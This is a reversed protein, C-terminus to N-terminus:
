VPLDVWQTDGWTVSAAGSSLSVVLEEARSLEEARDFVGVSIVAGEAGYETGLVNLGAARMENELRGADAHSSPVQGVRLRERSDFLAGDLTQVVADTYARVLGGAGLKIGGFYRVVVAVVDSLDTTGDESQRALLAQMMPVGATGAPEGDDSSRQVDRDAGIVFASCVHRADHYTKRVSEIYARAEEVTSVRKIHGIFESRKIELLSEYPEDGRPVLYRNARTEEQM